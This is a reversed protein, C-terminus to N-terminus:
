GVGNISHHPLRSTPSLSLLPFTRLTCGLQPILLDIQIMYGLMDLPILTIMPLSLHETSGRAFMFFLTLMYVGVNQIMTMSDKSITWRNVRLELNM